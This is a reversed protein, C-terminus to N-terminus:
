SLYGGGREKEMERDDGGRGAENMRDMERYGCM